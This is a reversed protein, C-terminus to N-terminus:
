DAPSLAGFQNTLKWTGPLDEREEKLQQAREAAWAKRFNQKAKNTKLDKFSDRLVEDIKLQYEFRRGVRDTAKVGVQGANLYMSEEETINKDVDINMDKLINHLEKDVQNAKDKVTHADVGAFAADLSATADM